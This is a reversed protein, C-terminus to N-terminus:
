ACDCVMLIRRNADQGAHKLKRGVGNYLPYQQIRACTTNPIPKPSSPRTQTHHSPPLTNHHRALGGLRYGRREGRGVVLQRTPTGKVLRQIVIQRGNSLRSVSINSTCCPLSLSLCIIGYIEFLPSLFGGLM